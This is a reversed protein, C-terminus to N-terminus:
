VCIWFRIRKVRCYCAYETKSIRVFSPHKIGDPLTMDFVLTHGDNSTLTNDFIPYDSPPIDFYPLESLFFTTPSSNLSNIDLSSDDNTETQFQNYLPPSPISHFSDYNLACIFNTGHSKLNVNLKNCPTLSSGTTKCPCFWLLCDSRCEIGLRPRYQFGFLRPQM